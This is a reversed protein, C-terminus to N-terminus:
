WIRKAKSSISAYVFNRYGNPIEVPSVGHYSNNCCIFFVGQNDCPRITSIRRTKDREPGRECQSYPVKEVYEHLSLDGGTIGLEDPDSFYILMTVLRNPRDCHVRTGYDTGTQHLDLRAYLEDINEEDEPKNPNFLRRKARRLRNVARLLRPAPSGDLVRRPEVYDNFHIRTRDLKCEFKGLYEGFLELVKSLYAESNIYSHFESWAPSATM